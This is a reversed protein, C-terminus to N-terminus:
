PIPLATAGYKSVNTLPITAGFKTNIAEIFIRSVFAYGRSNPHVGDESYIGTPPNINPTITVGNVVAAKSNILNSLAADVDALAIRTSNADVFATVTANFSARAANIEDRETPIIVWRDSLPESVGLIGFTGPTGLISGTSLPIIDSATTQRVRQYPVLAARQAATIAGAGQLGDFYPGLDTLTEDTVLIKNTCSATFVAKRTSIEAALADSIGFANKNAILGDLAANYGAFGGNLQTVLTANLPISNYAVATFHPMKFIDPFNGVVGKLNPNTVLLGTTPNLAANYYASFLGASTLPAATPDAGYAAYLFFDDLGAWFMFFTGGAFAADSLIRSAGPNSAFRAYFPNFGKAPDPDAWNGTAPTLLQGLTVAGVGFNNLETKSKTYLFGPNFQPNPLAELNGPAYAQMTPKPSPQLTTCDVGSGYQLLMRGLIPKTNDSLFPQTVFLNWGLSANIDPQNFTTSGGVCEFQKNLIAPLSNAQGEDFLAGAQFGAVLSNGIAIFKTFNASGPSGECPDPSINTLDPEAPTTEILEQECGATFLLTSLALTIYKLKKMIDDSLFKM